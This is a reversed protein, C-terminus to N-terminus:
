LSLKIARFVVSTPFYQPTHLPSHQATPVINKLCRLTTLPKKNIQKEKKPWMQLMHFNMAVAVHSGLWIQARHHWLKCCCWIRLRSLSALSWVEHTGTLNKDWQAVAPVGFLQWFNKLPFIISPELLDLGQLNPNGVQLRPKVLFKTKLCNMTTEWMHKAQTEVSKNIIYKLMWNPGIAEALIRVKLCRM